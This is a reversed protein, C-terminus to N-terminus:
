FNLEPLCFGKLIRRVGDCVSPLAQTFACLDSFASCYKADCAGGGEICRLWKPRAVEAGGEHM